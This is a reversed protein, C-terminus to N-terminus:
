MDKARSKAAEKRVKEREIMGKETTLYLTSQDVTGGRKMGRLVTGERVWNVQVQDFTAGMRNSVSGTSRNTPKGWRESTATEVSEFDDSPFGVIITHVVGNKLLITWQDVSVGALTHLAPIGKDYKTLYGCVEDTTPDREPKRCGGGLSDHAENMQAKSMGPSLGKLSIPESHAAASFLVLLVPAIRM